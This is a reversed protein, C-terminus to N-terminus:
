SRDASLSKSVLRAISVPEFIVVVFIVECIVDREIMLWTETSYKTTRSSFISTKKVRIHRQNCPQQQQQLHELLTRCQLFFDRDANLLQFPTLLRVVFVFMHSVVYADFRVVSLALADTVDRRAM